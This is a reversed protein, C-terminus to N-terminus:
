AMEEMRLFVLIPRKDAAPTAALELAWFVRLARRYGQRAKEAATPNARQWEKYSTGGAGPMGGYDSKM